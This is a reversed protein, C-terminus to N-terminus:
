QVGRKRGRVAQENLALKIARRLTIQDPVRPWPGELPKSRPAEPDVAAWAQWLTKSNVGGTVIISYANDWTEQCLNHLVAELRARVRDPLSRDRMGTCRDLISAM